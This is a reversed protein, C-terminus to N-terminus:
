KLRFFPFWLALSDIWFLVFVFSLIRLCLLLDMRWFSFTLFFSFIVPFFAQADAAFYRSARFAKGCRRGVWLRWRNTCLASPAHFPYSSSSALTSSATRGLSRFFTSLSASSTLLMVFHFLPFLFFDTSGGGKVIGGVWINSSFLLRCVFFFALFDFGAPAMRLM